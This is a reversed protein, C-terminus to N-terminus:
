EMVFFRYKRLNLLNEHLVGLSLAIIRFGKIINELRFWAYYFENLMINLDSDPKGVVDNLLLLYHVASELIERIYIYLQTEYIVNIHKHILKKGFIKLFVNTRSQCDLLRVALSYLLNHNWVDAKIQLIDHQHRGYVKSLVICVKVCAHQHQLLTVTCPTGECFVSDDFQRVDITRTFWNNFLVVPYYYSTEQVPKYLNEKCPTLVVIGTKLEMPLIITGLINM